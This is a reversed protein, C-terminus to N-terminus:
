ELRIGKKKLPCVVLATIFVVKATIDFEAPMM